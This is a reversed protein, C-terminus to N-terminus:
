RNRKQEHCHAQMCLWSVSLFSLSGIHGDDNYNWVVSYGSIILSTPLCADICNRKLATMETLLHYACSGGPTQHVSLHESGCWRPCSKHSLDTTKATSKKEKFFMKMNQAANQLAYLCTKRRRQM